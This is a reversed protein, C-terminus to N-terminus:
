WHVKLFLECDLGQDGQIEKVWRAEIVSQGGVIFQFPCEVEVLSLDGGGPM